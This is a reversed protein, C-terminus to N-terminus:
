VLRSQISSIKFVNQNPEVSDPANSSVYSAVLRSGYPVAKHCGFTCRMVQISELYNYVNGFITDFLFKRQIQIRFLLYKWHQKGLISLFYPTSNEVYLNFLAQGRRSEFECDESGFDSAKDMLGRPRIRNRLLAKGHVNSMDTGYEEM